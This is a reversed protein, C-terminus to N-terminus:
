EFTDDFTYDFIGDDDSDDIGENQDCIQQAAADEVVALEMFENTWGSIKAKGHMISYELQDIFLAVHNEDTLSIGIAKKRNDRIIKYDEWQLYTEFEYYNPLHIFEDTV